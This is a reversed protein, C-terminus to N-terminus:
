KAPMYRSFVKPADHVATALDPEVRSMIPDVPGHAGSFAPHSFTLQAMLRHGDSLVKGKHFGRTDVAMITGRKGQIEIVNDAGFATAIDDDSIRVYGRQLLEKSAKLGAKHSGRVFVHPGNDPGVDTLYVFFLLWKPPPDYDFHFAQAAADGPERGFNASWWLNLMSLFPTFGVYREAVALISRDAMLHQIAPHEAIAHEDLRYTKSKPNSPDFVELDEPRTGKGELAAPTKKAFQEIADCLEPPLRQEFVYFGDRDLAGAIENQREVSLDGLLGSAATPKRVSSFKKLLSTITDSTRANTDCHLRMLSLRASTSANKGWLYYRACATGVNCVDIGM